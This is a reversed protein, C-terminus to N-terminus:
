RSVTAFHVHVTGILLYELWAYCSLMYVTWEDGERRHLVSKMLDKYVKRAHVIRTAAIQSGGADEQVSADGKCKKKKTKKRRPLGSFSEETASVLIALGEQEQHKTWRERKQTPTSLIGLGIMAYALFLKFYRCHQAVPGRMQRLAMDYVKTAQRVNGHILESQAYAHWLETSDQNAALVDQLCSGVGGSGGSATVASTHDVYHAELNVLGIALTEACSRPLAVLAARLVRRVVNAWEPHLYKSCRSVDGKLSLDFVAEAAADDNVFESACIDELLTADSVLSVDEGGELEAVAEISGGGREGREWLAYPMHALAGRGVGLRVMWDVFETVMAARMRECGVEVIFKALDEGLIVREADEEEEDRSALDRSRLPMWTSPHSLCLHERRLCQSLPDESGEDNSSSEQIPQYQAPVPFIVDRQGEMWLRFGTRVQEQGSPPPKEGIRVGEQDWWEILEREQTGESGVTAFNHEINAQWLAMARETYGSMSEVYCIGRLLWLQDFEVANVASVDGVHMHALRRKRANSLARSFADRMTEISYTSFQTQRYRLYMRWVEGEGGQDGSGSGSHSGGSVRLIREWLKMTKEEEFRRRCLSIYTKLLLKSHPNHELGKLLISIQKEMVPGRMTDSGSAGGYIEMWELQWEALKIWGNVDEPHYMCHESLKKNKELAQEEPTSSNTEKSVSAATKTAPTNYQLPVVNENVPWDAQDATCM